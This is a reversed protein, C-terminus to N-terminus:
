RKLIAIVIGGVIAIGIFEAYNLPQFGLVMGLLMGLLIGLIGLAPTILFMVMVVGSLIIAYFTADVNGLEDYIENAFKQIVLIDEYSFSGRAYYVGVFTGNGYAGINCYITGSSSTDCTDCIGLDATAGRKIVRLCSSTVLGTPDIYTLVFNDTLNNFTLSYELDEFKDFISGTSGYVIFRQPTDSIKYPTTSFLTEGDKVGVFKYLTDYWNLYVIDKGDYNSKANAVTYYTDTGPDYRQINIYVNEIPNQTQTIVELETLTAATDNLLYLTINSTQNTISAATLFYSNPAYNASSYEIQSDILYTKDSPSACFGFTSNGDATEQYSVNRQALGLGSYIRFFAAFTSPVQALTDGDKVTFNLYSVNNSATCIGFTIPTVAQAHSTSNQYTTATVNQLVFTWYFNFNTLTGNTTPVNISKTFITNLGDSTKTGLYSTGNYVLYGTSSSYLSAITINIKFSELATEVSTTNYSESNTSTTLYFETFNTHTNGFSDNAYVYIRNTGGNTISTINTINCPTYVLTASLSTNYWCSQLNTDSATYNLTVNYPISQIGQNGTPTFISITPKTGDLTFTRNATTSNSGILGGYGTCSWNYRGDDLASTTWSANYSITNLSSITNTYDVNSSSDYVNLKVSSINEGGSTTFNCKIDVLNITTNFNDVPASSTATISAYPEESGFIANPRDQNYIKYQEAPTLQTNFIGAEDLAGNCKNGADFSQAMLRISTDTNLAGSLSFNLNTGDMYGYVNTNGQAKSVLWTMNKLVVYNGIPTGDDGYTVIGAELSAVHPQLIFNNRTAAVGGGGILGCEDAVNLRGFAYYTRSEDVDPIATVGGALSLYDNTGDFNYGQGRPMNTLAPTGSATLNSRGLEDNYNGNFSWFAVLSTGFVDKIDSTTSAGANGYYMYIGTEGLNEVRVIAYNSDSKWEIWYNLESNEANNLFRLDSFDSNMNSDYTVNLQVISKTGLNTVEKKYAWNTDWWALEELWKGNIKLQYDVKQYPLKVADIGLVNEKGSLIDNFKYPKKTKRIKEVDKYVYDWSCDKEITGNLNIKGDICVNKSKDYDIEQETYTETELTYLSYEIQVEKGKNDIFRIDEVYTDYYTNLNLEDNCNVMCYKDQKIIKVDVIPDLPIVWLFSNKITIEPYGLSMKDYNVDKINDIDTASIMPLVLFLTLFLTLLLKPNM